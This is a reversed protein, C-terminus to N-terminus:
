LYYAELNEFKVLLDKVFMLTENYFDASVYMAWSGHDIGLRLLNFKLEQNFSADIKKVSEYGQKFPKILSAQKLFYRKYLGVIDFHENFVVCKEFDLFTKLHYKEHQDSNVGRNIERNILINRGDLDRHCLRGEKLIKINSYENRLHKILTDFLAM